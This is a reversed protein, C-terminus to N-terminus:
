LIVVNFACNTVMALVAKVIMETPDPKGMEIRKLDVRVVADFCEKLPGQDRAWDLCLMKSATTKGIGGDGEMVIRKKGAQILHILSEEFSKMDTETKTETKTDAETDAETDTDVETDTDTDVETEDTSPFRRQGTPWFWTTKIM